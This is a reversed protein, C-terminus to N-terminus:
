IIIVKNSIMIKNKSKSPTIQVTRQNNYVQEMIEIKRSQYIQKSYKM